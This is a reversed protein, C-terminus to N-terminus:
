SNVISKIIKIIEERMIHYNIEKHKHYVIKHCYDDVISMIIHVKEYINPIVYQKDKLYSVVKNTVILESNRFIKGIEPDIHTMASIEEHAKVSFTHRKVMEDLISGIDDLQLKDEDIVKLIPYMIDDLYKKIGEIFIDRKDNFYQYPIM